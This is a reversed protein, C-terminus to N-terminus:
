DNGFRKRAEEFQAREYFWEGNELRTPEIGLEEALMRHVFEATIPKSPDLFNRLWKRTMM